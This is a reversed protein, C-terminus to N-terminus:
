LDAWVRVVLKKLIWKLLVKEDVSIDRLRYRGKIYQLYFTTHMGGIGWAHYM